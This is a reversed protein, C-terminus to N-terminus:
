GAKCRRNQTVLRCGSRLTPTSAQPSACVVTNTGFTGAHSPWAVRTRTPPIWTSFAVLFYDTNTYIQLLKHAQFGSVKCSGYASAANAVVWGLPMCVASPDDTNQTFTGTKTPMCPQGTYQPDSGQDYKLCCTSKDQTSCSDGPPLMDRGEGASPLTTTACMPAPPTMTGMCSCDETVEEGQDSTKIYCDNTKHGLPVKPTPECHKKMFVYSKCGPANLECLKRCGNETANHWPNPAYLERGTNPDTGNRVNVMDFFRMNRGHVCPGARAPAGSAGAVAASASSSPSTIAALFALTAPSHFKEEPVAAVSEDANSGHAVKYSWTLRSADLTGSCRTVKPVDGVKCETGVAGSSSVCALCTDPQHAATILAQEEDVQPASDRKWDNTEYMMTLCNYSRMHFIFPPHEPDQGTPDGRFEWQQYSRKYRSTPDIKDCPQRYLFLKSRDYLDYGMGLCADITDATKTSNGSIRHQTKRHRCNPCDPTPSPASKAKLYCWQLVPDKGASGGDTDYSFFKCEPDKFCADCCGDVSNVAVRRLQVGDPALLDGGDYDIGHEVTCSMKSANSLRLQFTVNDYEWMQHEQAPLQQQGAAPDDWCTWMHSNLMSSGNPGKAVGDVCTRPDVLLSITMNKNPGSTGNNFVFQQNWTPKTCAQLTLGTSRPIDIPMPAAMKAHLCIEQLDDAGSVNIYQSSKVADNVLTFLQNKSPRAGGKWGVSDPLNADCSDASIKGIWCSPHGSPTNANWQWAECEYVGKACCYDACAEPTSLTDYTALLGYCRIDNLPVIFDALGCTDFPTTLNNFDFCTCGDQRCQAMCGALDVADSAWSVPAHYGDIAADKTHGCFYHSSKNFGSPFSANPFYSDYAERSPTQMLGDAVALKTLRCRPSDVRPATLTSAALDNSPDDYLQRSLTEGEAAISAAAADASPWLNGKYTRLGKCRYMQMAPGVAEYLDVCMNPDTYSVLAFEGNNGVGLKRWRQEKLNTCRYLALM